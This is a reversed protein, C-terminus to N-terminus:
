RELASGSAQELDFGVYVADKAKSGPEPASESRQTKPSPPSCDAPHCRFLKKVCCKNSGIERSKGSHRITAPM